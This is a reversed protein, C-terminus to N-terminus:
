STPSAAVPPTSVMPSVPPAATDTRPISPDVTLDLTTRGLIGAEEGICQNAETVIEGGRAALAGLVADDHRAREVNGSSVAAEINAVRDSASRAAVNMQNLKDDLCLILVVDKKERARRLQLGINDAAAEMRDLAARAEELVREPSRTDEAPASAEMQAFVSPTLSSGEATQVKMLGLGLLLGGLMLAGIKKKGFTM